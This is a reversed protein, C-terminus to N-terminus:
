ETGSLDRVLADADTVPLRCEHDRCVYATARGDVQVHHEIWPALALVDGAERPPRLLVVKNPLFRGRAAALLARTDESGEDGVIVLEVSPGIGYDLGVLFM